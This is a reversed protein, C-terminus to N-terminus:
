IDFLADITGEKNRNGFYMFICNKKTCYNKSLRCEESGYIRGPCNDHKMRWKRDQWKRDEEPAETENLIERGSNGAIIM